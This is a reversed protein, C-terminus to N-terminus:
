RAVRRHPPTIVSWDGALSETSTLTDPYIPVAVKGALRALDPIRDTSDFRSDVISPIIVSDDTMLAYLEIPSLGYLLILHRFYSSNRPDLRGSELHSLYNRSPMGLKLFVDTQSLKAAGRKRRLFDAVATFQKTTEGAEKLDSM